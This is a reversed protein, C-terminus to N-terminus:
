RAFWEAVGAFILMAIFLLALAKYDKTTLDDDM